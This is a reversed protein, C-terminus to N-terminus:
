RVRGSRRMLREISRTAAPSRSWRTPTRPRSSTARIPRENLAMASRIWAMIRPWFSSIAPTDWSSREGRDRIFSPRSSSLFVLAVGLCLPLMFVGAVLGAVASWAAPTWLVEGALWRALRGGVFVLGTSGLGGAAALVVMGVLLGSMARRSASGARSVVASAVQMTPVDQVKMVAFLWQGTRAIQGPLHTAFAAMALTAVLVGAGTAASSDLAWCWLRLLVAAWAILIAAVAVIVTRDTRTLRM